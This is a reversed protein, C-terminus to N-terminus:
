AHMPVRPHSQHASSSALQRKRAGARYPFIRQAITSPARTADLVGRHGQIQMFFTNQAFHEIEHHHRKKHHYLPLILAKFPFFL